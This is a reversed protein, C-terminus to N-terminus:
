AVVSKLFSYFRFAWAFESSFIFSLTRGDRPICHLWWWRLDFVLVYKLVYIIRLRELLSSYTLRQLSSPSLFTFFRPIPLTLLYTVAMSFYMSVPISMGSYNTSSNRVKIEHNSSNKIYYFWWCWKCSNESPIEHGEQIISPNNKLLSYDM